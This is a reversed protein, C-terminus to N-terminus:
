SSWCPYSIARARDLGSVAAAMVADATWEGRPFSAAVRGASLVLIRDALAFLEDLESSAVVLAKGREALGRLLAHAEARAGVDIGRTPEDVLLVDSDRCLWRALLTKQQNGGSLQDVPQEPSRARVGVAAIHPDALASERGRQLRGLADAADRLRSLSVNARVSFPLLLGQTKRDEPVLALGLRVADRPSRISAPTVSPGLFVSGASRRDAGYIARLLETRGSGVLGALGVVEGRRVEFSVDRFGPGTFGQVRLAVAGPERDAPAPPETMARGVMLRVIEDRGIERVPRTSVLRGDRLVSVRKGIREVEALRHSIFFVGTGERRLREVQAFLAEAEAPALAATPEDLILIACHRALAGAIEVLQQQGIGLSALPRDPGLDALGVRALAARSEARLRRRDIVGFRTPLRDLFLSEAVSLTGIGNLEQMVFAVGAERSAARDRPAYAAGRLRMAGGDPQAVGAVIRALTSKGAGNEGVVAHVEGAQLDLSVDTLVPAAYAKGLGAAEFLSPM